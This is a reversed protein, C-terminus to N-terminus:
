PASRGDCGEPAPSRGRVAATCERVLTKCPAGRDECHSRRACEPVNDHAPLPAASAPPPVSLQAAARAPFRGPAPAAGPARPRAQAAPAPVRHILRRALGSVNVLGPVYLLTAEKRATPDRPAARNPQRTPVRPRPGPDPAILGAKAAVRARSSLM